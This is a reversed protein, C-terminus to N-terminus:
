ENPKNPNLSIFHGTRFVVHELSMLMIIMERTCTYLGCFRLEGFRRGGFVFRVVLGFFAAAKGIKEMEEMMEEMMEEVMEEM